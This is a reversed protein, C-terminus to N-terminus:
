IYIIYYPEHFPRPRILLVGHIYIYIIFYVSFTHIYVSICIIKYSILCVRTLRSRSLTYLACRRLLRDADRVGRWGTPPSRTSERRGRACVSDSDQDRINNNNNYVCVCACIVSLRYVLTSTHTYIYIATTATTLLLQIGVLGTIYLPSIVPSFYVRSIFFFFFLFVVTCM